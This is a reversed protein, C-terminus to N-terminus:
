SHEENRFLDIKKQASFEWVREFIRCLAGNAIVNSCTILPDLIANLALVIAIMEPTFSLYHEYIPLMIFIAGGFVAATAFRALVFVLSFPLWISLPPPAGHFHLYILFCLFAQAICDGTQQINTTAPIVAKALDPTRLNKSTGEITWPMTSLSCGSSFAMGAAPLLNQMNRLCTQISFGSGIFFLAGIYLAMFVPLWVFLEAYQSFMQHFFETKVMRAVFGLIFLPILRSFTRTIVREALRKAEELKKRLRPFAFVSLLGIGVGVFTGKDASWWIPKTIPMRWLPSFADIVPHAEIAHLGGGILHGCGYTYWVSMSNSLGEFLFLLLIFLPAKKEFSAIANAIFIGVTLPLIWLLLDKIFLSITYLGQHVEPPLFPAIALYGAITLFIQISRHQLLARM